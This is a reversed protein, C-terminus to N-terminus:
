RICSMLHFNYKKCKKSKGTKGVDAQNGKLGTVTIKPQWITRSALGNLQIQKAESIAPFIVRHDQWQIGIKSIFTLVMSHIDIGQLQDNSTNTMINDSVLINARLNPNSPLIRKSYGRRILCFGGQHCWYENNGCHIIEPIQAFTKKEALKLILNYISWLRVWNM